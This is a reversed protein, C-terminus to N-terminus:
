AALEDWAALAHAAYMVSPGGGMQIAMAMVDGLEERTGGAKMLAEVHFSICPECRQSIAIGLAVFEKEKAGLPGTEKAAKSLAGFGAMADPILKNMVRLEGRMDAIKEKYAM